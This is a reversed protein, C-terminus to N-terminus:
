RRKFVLMLLLVIIAIVIGFVVFITAETYFTPVPSIVDLLFM